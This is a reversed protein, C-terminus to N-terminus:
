PGRTGDKAELMARTQEVTLHYKEALAELIENNSRMGKSDEHMLLQQALQRLKVAVGAITSERQGQEKYLTALVSEIHRYHTEIQKHADDISQQATRYSYGPPPAKEHGRLEVIRAEAADIAWIRRLLLEVDPRDNWLVDAKKRFRAIGLRDKGSRDCFLALSNLRARLRKYDRGMLVLTNATEQAVAALSQEPSRENPAPLPM